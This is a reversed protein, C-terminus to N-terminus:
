SHCQQKFPLWAPAAIIQLKGSATGTIQNMGAHGKKERNENAQNFVSSHRHTGSLAKQSALCGCLEQRLQAENMCFCRKFYLPSARFASWAHAFAVEIGDTLPQSKAPSEGDTAAATASLHRTSQSPYVSCCLPTETKQMTAM